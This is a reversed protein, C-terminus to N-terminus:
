GVNLPNIRKCAAAPHNLIAYESLLFNTKGIKALLQLLESVEIESFHLSVPEQALNQSPTNGHSPRVVLPILLALSLIISSLKKHAQKM